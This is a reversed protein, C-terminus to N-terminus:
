KVGKLQELVYELVDIQAQLVQKTQESTAICDRYYKFNSVQLELNFIIDPLRKM